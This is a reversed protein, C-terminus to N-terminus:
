GLIGTQRDQRCDDHFAFAELTAPLDPTRAAAARLTTSARVALQLTPSNPSSTTVTTSWAQPVGPAVFERASTPVVPSDPFRISRNALTPFPPPQLPLAFSDVLPIHHTDLRHILALFLFCPLDRHVAHSHMTTITRAPISAEGSAFTGLVRDNSPNAEDADQSKWIPTWPLLRTECAYCCNPLM